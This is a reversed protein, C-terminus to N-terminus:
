QIVHCLGLDWTEIIHHKPDSAPEDKTLIEIIIGQYNQDEWKSHTDTKEIGHGFLSNWLVLIYSLM